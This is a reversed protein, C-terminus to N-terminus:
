LGSFDLRTFLLLPLYWFIRAMIIQFAFQALTNFVGMFNAGMSGGPVDQLGLPIAIAMLVVSTTIAGVSLIMFVDSTADSWFTNAGEIMELGMARARAVPDPSVPASDEGLTAKMWAVVPVGMLGFVDADIKNGKFVELGELNNNVLTRMESRLTCITDSGAPCITAPQTYLNTILPRAQDMYQTGSTLASRLQGYYIAPVLAGALAPSISATSAPPTPTGTIPHYDDPSFLSIDSDERNASAMIQYYKGALLWGEAKATAFPDSAANGGMQNASNKAAVQNIAGKISRMYGFYDAVAFTLASSAPCPNSGPPCSTSSNGAAVDRAIGQAIPQLDMILANIAPEKYSAYTFSGCLTNNSNNGNASDPGDAGFSIIADSGGSSTIPPVTGGFIGSGGFSSFGGNAAQNVSLVPAVAATQYMGQSQPHDLAIAANQLIYMCIEANLINQVDPLTAHSVTDPIVKQNEPASMAVQNYAPNGKQFFDIASDWVSDALGVGHIVVWMVLLQIFSYGSFKPLLAAVGAVVRIPVMTHMKKGMFEGEHAANIVSSVSTYVVFSGALIWIALNFVIFVYSLLQTGGGQLVAGVSGFLQGLYIISQDTANVIAPPKFVGTTFDSVDINNPDVAFGTVPLLMLFFGIASLLCSIKKGLGTILPPALCISQSPRFNNM